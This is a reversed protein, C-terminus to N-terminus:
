DCHGVSNPHLINQRENKTTIALELTLPRWLAPAKRCVDHCVEHTVRRGAAVGQVGYRHQRMGAAQLMLNRDAPSVCQTIAAAGARQDAAVLVACLREEHTSSLCGANCAWLLRFLEQCFAVLEGHVTADFEPLGQLLWASLDLTATLLQELSSWKASATSPQDSLAVGTPLDVLRLMQTLAPLVNNQLLKTAREEQHTWVTCQLWAQLYELGQVLAHRTGSM